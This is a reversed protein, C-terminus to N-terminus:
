HIANSRGVEPELLWAPRTLTGPAGGAIRTEQTLWAQDLDQRVPGGPANDETVVHTATVFWSDLSVFFGTGTSIPMSDHAANPLEVCFTTARTVDLTQHIM